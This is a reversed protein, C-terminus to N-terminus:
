RQIRASLSSPSPVTPIASRAEPLPELFGHRCGFADLGTLASRKHIVEGHILNGLVCDAM